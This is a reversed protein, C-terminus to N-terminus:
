QDVVDVPHSLIFYGLLCYAIEGCGTARNQFNKFRSLGSVEGFGVTYLTGV